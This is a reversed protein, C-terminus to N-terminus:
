GLILRLRHGKPEILVPEFQSQCGFECIKQRKKRQWLPWIWPPFLRAGSSTRQGVLCTHSALWDSRAHHCTIFARFACVAQSFPFDTPARIRIQAITNTNENKYTYSRSSIANWLRGRSTASRPRIRIRKHKIEFGLSLVLYSDGYICTYARLKRTIM